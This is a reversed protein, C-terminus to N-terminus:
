TSEGQEIREWKGIPCRETALKIKALFSCGCLKCRDDVLNECTMCQAWRRDREDPSVRIPEGTAAAKVVRGLAKAANSVMELASPSGGEAAETAAMALVMERYQDRQWADPNDDSCLYRYREAKTRSVVIELAQDLTM